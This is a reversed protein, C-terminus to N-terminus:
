EPPVCLAVFSLLGVLSAIFACGSTVGIVGPIMGGNTGVIEGVALVTFVVGGLKCVGTAFAVIGL